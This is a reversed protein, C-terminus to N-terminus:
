IEIWHFGSGEVVSDLGDLEILKVKVLGTLDADAKALVHLSYADSHIMYEKMSEKEQNNM